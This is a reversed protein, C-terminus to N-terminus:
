LMRCYFRMNPRQIPVFFFKSFGYNEFLKKITKRNYIALHKPPRLEKWKSIDKPVAFHGSDPTTIFLIANRNALKVLSKMFEDIDIVHEIVEGCWVIDFKGGRKCFDSIPENYFHANKWIKKAEVIAGESIDIGTADLGVLTAAGVMHGVNCGIDLFKNGSALMKLILARTKFIFMNKMPNNVHKRHVNKKYFPSLEDLTPYPRIRILGCQNCKVYTFKKKVLLLYNDEGCLACENQM